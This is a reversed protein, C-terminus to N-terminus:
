RTHGPHWQKAHPHVAALPLSSRPHFTPRLGMRTRWYRGPGLGAAGRARGKARVPRRPTQLLLRNRPLQHRHGRGELTSPGVWGQAEIAEVSQPPIQPQIKLAVPHQHGEM